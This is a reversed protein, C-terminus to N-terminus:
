DISEVYTPVREPKDYRAPMIGRLRELATAIGPTYIGEAIWKLNLEYFEIAQDEFPLAQEELLIEYQELALEDLERPRESAMLDKSLNRYLDGLMVTAFTSPEALGFEITRNLYGAAEEMLTQKRTLSKDLPLTLKVREFQSVKSRGLRLSARSALLLSRESVEPAAAVTTVMEDLWREAARSNGTADAIEVLIERADMAEELPAPFSAIFREYIAAAARPNGAKQELEAARWLAERGLASPGERQFIQDLYFSAKAWQGTQEYAVVLKDPVTEQLPNGVYATRFQELVQIAEPWRQETLLLTAADFEATPRVKADNVVHGVRLFHNIAAVNDKLQDRAYEGQKYIAEATRTRFVLREEPAVNLALAQLYAREAAAYRQLEFNAHASVRWLRLRLDPKLSRNQELLISAVELAADNDQSLLYDEALKTAIQAAQPANPYTSVFRRSQTISTDLWRRQQEENRAGQYLAQYALLAAYGAEHRKDFDGESYAALEYARAAAETQGLETLAEAKLFYMQPLKPDGPMAEIFQDYWGLALGYNFAAESKEKAQQAKAHDRQALDQLYAPLFERVYSRRNDDANQWYSSSTGFRAVFAERAPWAQQPFGGDSYAAVVRSQYYPTNDGDPYREVLASFSGAADSYRRKREYYQGLDAYVREEYPREGVRAFYDRVTDVGQQYAFTMAIVRLVDALLRRKSGDDGQRQDWYKDVLPFFSVLAKSHNGLKFDSWALKYLARDQYDSADPDDLLRQYQEAALDYDGLTFQLEGIRFGIEQGFPNGPYDRQLRLLADLSRRADGALDYARALQYLIQDKQEVDDGRDLLPEYLEIARAFSISPDTAKWGEIQASEALMLTLDALHRQAQESVSRNLGREQLLRLARHLASLDPLVPERPRNELRRQGDERVLVYHNQDATGSFYQLQPISKSTLWLLAQEAKLVMRAPEDKLSQALAKSLKVRNRNLEKLMKRARPELQRLSDARQQTAETNLTEVLARRSNIHVELAQQAKKLDVQTEWWPYPFPSGTTWLSLGTLQTYREQWPNPTGVLSSLELELALQDPSKGAAHEAPVRYPPRPALDAHVLLQSAVYARGRKFLTEYGRIYKLNNEVLKILTNVRELEQVLTRTAPSFHLLATANDGSHRQNLQREFNPDNIKSGADQQYELQKTLADIWIGSIEAAQASAGKAYLFQLLWSQHLSLPGDGSTDVLELLAMLAADADGQQRYLSAETMLLQRHLAADVNAFLRTDIRGNNEGQTAAVRADLLSAYGSLQSSPSPDSIPAKPNTEATAPPPPMLTKLLSRTTDNNGLALQSLARNYRIMPLLESDAPLRDYMVLAERHQGRAQALMASVIQAREAVKPHVPPALQSLSHEADSLDRNYYHVLAQNLWLRNVQDLTYLSEVEAPLRLVRGDETVNSHSALLGPILEKPYKEKDQQWRSLFKYREPWLLLHRAEEQSIHDALLPPAAAILLGLTLLATVRGAVVM